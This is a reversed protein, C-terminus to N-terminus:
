RIDLAKRGFCVLACAEQTEIMIVLDSAIMLHVSKLNILFEKHLFVM